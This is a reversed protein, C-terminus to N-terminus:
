TETRHTCLQKGKRNRRQKILFGTPVSKIGKIIDAPLWIYFPTINGQHSMAKRMFQEMMQPNRLQYYQGLVELVDMQGKWENKTFTKLPTAYEVPGGQEEWDM